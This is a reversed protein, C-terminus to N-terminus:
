KQVAEEILKEVLQKAQELLQQSEKRTLQSKIIMSSIKQALSKDFLPVPLKRLYVSDITPYSTGGCYKEFINRISRLYLWVTERYISEKIQITYFAGSCITPFTLVDDIIAIAGRTPRVQSIIIEGGSLRIKANAPLEKINLRHQTYSGDGINVNSIEIYDFPGEEKRLDINPQIESSLKSLPLWGNKYNFILSLYPMFKAHFFEADTRNSVVVESLKATYSLLSDPGLKDLGLETELMQVAKTYLSQSQKKLLYSKNVLEAIEQQTQIPLVPILIHKLESASVNAQNISPMARRKIQGIGFTTNLYVTLYEPLIEQKNPVVRVLYSAFVSDSQDKVLGTRGVFEFSNTRNFLVDNEHLRFQKFEADSIDAYKAAKTAFCNEIENMRFIPYGRNKENMSISIGYQCDQLTKGLRKWIYKASPSFTYRPDFFEASFRNQNIAESCKIIAIAM